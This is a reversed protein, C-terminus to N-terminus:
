KRRYFFTPMMAVRGLELLISCKLGLGLGLGVKVKVFALVICHFGLGKKVRSRHRQEGYILVRETM